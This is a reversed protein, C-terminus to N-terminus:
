QTQSRLIAGLQAYVKSGAFHDRAYRLASEQLALRREDSELLSVVAGAFEPWNDCVMCPAEGEFVLGEIANQTAVLPKGNCLAEVTKIKLGTGTMTPNIVVASQRYLSKLDDVWGLIKVQPVTVFLADGIKGAVLLEARPHENCVLPWAHECFAKLGSVNAEYDSGVVLVTNKHYEDIKCHTALEYDIGVTVVKREPVLARFQEAESEQIAIVVDVNLLYEREEEASCYISEKPDRKSLLDHTDVLKLVGSPVERMCPTSLVYEAIVVQPRYRKCLIGTAQVLSPSGLYSRMKEAETRPARHRSFLGNVANIIRRPFPPLCEDVTHVADVINLLQERIESSIPPLNLLLVVHIGEARLWHIMKLIRIENGAAPLVPNVHSIFLVTLASNSIVM